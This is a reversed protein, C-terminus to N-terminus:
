TRTKREILRIVGQIAEIDIEEFYVDGCQTCVWAPLAEWTVHYGRRDVHFPATGREMQGQCHLCQM